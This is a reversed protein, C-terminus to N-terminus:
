LKYFMTISCIVLPYGDDCRGGPASPRHKVTRPDASESTFTFLFSSPSLGMNELLWIRPIKRYTTYIHIYIYVYIDYIYIYIHIYMYYVHIYIYIYMRIHIYIYTYVYICMYTYIYVYTHTYIYIYMRIHTYIYIYTHTHIITTISLPIDLWSLIGHTQFHSLRFTRTNEKSECHPGM